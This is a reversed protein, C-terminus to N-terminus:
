YVGTTQYHQGSSLAETQVKMAKAMKGVVLKLQQVTGQDAGPANIYYNHNETRGGGGASAVGLNGDPGRRLPMIAEPGAEGFLAMPAITPSDVVGGQAFPVVSGGSFVNGHASAVLSTLGFSRMLPQVILAKITIQEIDRLISKAMDTFAQSATKTGSVFDTLGSTLNNEISNSLQRASNNFRMQAAEASNLAESVDPYIDKLKSAISVDEQSLFATRRDFRIQANTQARALATAAQGAREALEYFKEAYKETDTIGAREAAAYLQAETRLKMMEGAGAGAAEAEAKMKAIQREIADETRGIDDKGGMNPLVTSGQNAPTVRIRDPKDYLSQLKDLLAMVQDISADEPLGLMGALNRAKLGLFSDGSTNATPLSGGLKDMLEVLRYADNIQDNLQAKSKDEDPTMWRSASGTVAGVANLITSALNAAQTLLPLIGALSAKFQLDWAAVAAKWQGNFEQAKAITADDIIIGLDQAAKKQAEFQDVSEKLFPLWSKSVGVIDTIRRQVDPTANQMLGMIDTIAQKTTILQDNAGKISLGNQKFLEGFETTKQSAQALDSSIKEIGSFFDKDSVGSARAAYLTQQFEKVSMGALEAHDALDVLQQSQQGVYDYFGRLSAIAAAVGIGVGAVALVYSQVSAVGKQASDASQDMARSFQDAGSTDADIVLETVVQQSM